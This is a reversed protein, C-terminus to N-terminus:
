FDFNSVIRVLLKIEKDYNKSGFTSLPHSKMLKM